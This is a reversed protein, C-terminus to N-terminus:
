TVLYKCSFVAGANRKKRCCVGCITCLLFIVFCVVIPIFIDMRFLHFVNCKKIPVSIKKEILFKILKRSPIITVITMITTTLNLATMMSPILPIRMLITLIISTMTLARLSGWQVSFLGRCYWLHLLVLDTSPHSVFLIGINIKHPAIWAM